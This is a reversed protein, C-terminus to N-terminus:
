SSWLSPSTRLPTAIVKLTANSLADALPEPPGAFDESGIVILCPAQVKALQEVTFPRRQQALCARLAQSDNGPATILSEFRAVVNGQLPANDGSDVVNAGIAGLVMRNVREPHSIAIGLATHAGLSYGIVDAPADPFQEM